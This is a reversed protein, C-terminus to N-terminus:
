DKKTIPKKSTPDQSSNTWAPKSGRDEQDRSGSYSPNYASGGVGQGAVKIIRLVRLDKRIKKVLV